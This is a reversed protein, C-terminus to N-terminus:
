LVEVPSPFVSRVRPPCLCFRTNVLVWPFSCHDWLPSFWIYKSTNSPKRHLHPDDTAQRLSPPVLLLLGPLPGNIYTRKSTVVIGVMSGMSGLATDGRALCGVCPPLVVRGMVLCQVSAESLVTRGGLALSLKEWQWDRGGPLKCM